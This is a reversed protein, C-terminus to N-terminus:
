VFSHTTRGHPSLAHSSGELLQRMVGIQNGYADSAVRMPALNTIVKFEGPTYYTAAQTMSSPDLVHLSDYDFLAWLENCHHCVCNTSDIIKDFCPIAVTERKYRVLKTGSCRNCVDGYNLFPVNDVNISRCSQSSSSKLPINDPIFSLHQFDPALNLKTLIWGRGTSSSSQTRFSQPQHWKFVTCAFDLFFRIFLPINIANISFSSLFFFYSPFLSCFSLFFSSGFRSM